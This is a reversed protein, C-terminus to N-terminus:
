SSAQGVPRLAHRARLRRRHAQHDPRRPGRSEARPHAPRPDRERCNLLWPDVDTEAAFMKRSALDLVGNSGSGTMSSRVDAQLDRDTMAEQWSVNLMRELILHAQYLGMSHHLACLGPCVWGSTSAAM